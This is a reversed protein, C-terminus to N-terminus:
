KIRNELIAVDAKEVIKSLSFCGCIETAAVDNKVLLVDDGLM